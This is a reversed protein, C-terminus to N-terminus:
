WGIHSSSCLEWKNVVLLRCAEWIRISRRASNLMDISGGLSKGVKCAVRVLFRVRGSLTKQLLAVRTRMVCHVM